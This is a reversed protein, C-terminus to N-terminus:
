LARVRAVLLTLDDSQEGASFARVSEFVAMVTQEVSLENSALLVDLLREEGYEEEGRMAESVRDSFIAFLDGPALGIEGSVCDWKEFLGIVMATAKLRQVSGDARLLMPPNHGCNVFTLRRSHDDYLGFFLTAYHQPSSSKWLLRNVNKLVGVPDGPCNGSQSRLHAQLTAMLLAAHVGKGSVDALVFGVRNPGLDLFDYYDGGVSRAQLCRAESDLTQLRPSAQPLLRGQVEKAIEMERATRREAELRASIEGALRM